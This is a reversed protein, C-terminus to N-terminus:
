HEHQYTHSPGPILYTLVHSQQRSTKSSVKQSASIWYILYNIEGGRPLYSDPVVTLIDLM